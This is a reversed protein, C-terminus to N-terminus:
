TLNAIKPKAPNANQPTKISVDMFTVKGVSMCCNEILRM